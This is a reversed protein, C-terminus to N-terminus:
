AKKIEVLTLAISGIIFGYGVLWVYYGILEVPHMAELALPAILGLLFGLLSVAVLCWLENQRLRSLIQLAPVILFAINLVGAAGLIVYGVKEFDHFTLGHVIAEFGLGIAWITAQAGFFIAPSGLVSLQISPLALSALFCVLGCIAFWYSIGYDVTKSIM